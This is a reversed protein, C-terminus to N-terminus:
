GVPAQGRDRVVHADADFGRLLPQHRHKGRLAPVKKIERESIERFSEATDLVHVIEAASLERIGLLHKHLLGTKM